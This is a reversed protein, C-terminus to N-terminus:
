SAADKAQEQRVTVARLGYKQLAFKRLAKFARVGNIGQEARFSVTFIPRDDVKADDALRMRYIATRCEGSCYRADHRKPAFLQDCRACHRKRVPKPPPRWMSVLPVALPGRLGM